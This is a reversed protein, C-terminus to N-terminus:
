PLAEEFKTFHAAADGEIRCRGRAVAYGEVPDILRGAIPYVANEDDHRSL